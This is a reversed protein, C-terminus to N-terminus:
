RTNPSSLLILNSVICAPHNDLTMAARAVIGGMSHAVVLIDAFSSHVSIVCLCVFTVCVMMTFLTWM